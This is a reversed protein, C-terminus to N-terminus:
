KEELYKQTKEFNECVWKIKDTAKKFKNQDYLTEDIVDFATKNKTKEKNFVKEIEYVDLSDGLPENKKIWDFNSKNDYCKGTMVRKLRKATVDYAIGNPTTDTKENNTCLIFQRNGGDEKNLELVAQGTTGSGAFFDLVIANKNYYLLILFKMLNTPKPNDFVQANFIHKLEKTGDGSNINKIINKSPTFKTKKYYYKDGKKYVYSNDVYEKKHIKIDNNVIHFILKDKNSLLYESSWGWVGIVNNRIPPKIPIYKKNILDQNVDNYNKLLNDFHTKIDNTKENYYITYALKPRNNINLNGFGGIGGNDYYYKDKEKTLEIEEEICTSIINNTNTIKRYCLIYEYNKQFDITAIDSNGKEWVISSCLNKEGFVEDFLCKVYAQNRDDISCFIVGDDSMLEKALILRNYLMSLLNDRTIANDYNTEAFEGMSDKGYPPDIYIVDIKNKYQILLNQLADYNDGIILKHVLPETDKSEKNKTVKTDTKTKTNKSISTFSLKENKKFYKIDDSLKELRKDFHFGTRKYTTGLAAINIAENMDDANKILKILLKANSEEIIQDQQRKLIESILSNKIEETQKTSM